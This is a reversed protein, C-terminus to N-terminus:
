ANSEEKLLDLSINLFGAVRRYFKISGSRKGQMVLSVQASSFKIEQALEYQDIDRDDLEKRMAEIFNM